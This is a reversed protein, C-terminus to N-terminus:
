KGGERVELPFIMSLFIFVAVGLAIPAATELLWLGGLGAELFALGTKSILQANVIINWKNAFTGAMAVLSVAPMASPYRMAMLSLFFSLLLLAIVLYMLPILPSVTEATAPSWFWWVAMQLGTLAAVSLSGAAHIKLVPVVVERELASYRWLFYVLMFLATAVVFTDAFYTVPLLAWSRWAPNWTQTIFLSAPYIGWLTLFPLMLVAVIRAAMEVKGYKEVTTVGLSFARYLTKRFGSSIVSAQHSYYSFTLLAFLISLILATLWAISQFATLSIGPNTTTPIVHPQVFILYARHPSRLDALPGTLVVAFFGIGLMTMLPIAKRLSGSLYALASLILLDAGSVLLTYAFLVPHWLLPEAIENPFYYQLM